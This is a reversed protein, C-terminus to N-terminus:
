NSNRKIQNDIYTNLDRVQRATNELKSIRAVLKRAEEINGEKANSRCDKILHDLYEKKLKPVLLTSIDSYFISDPSVASFFEIDRELEDPKKQRFDRNAAMMKSNLEQEDDLINIYKNIIDGTDPIDLKEADRFSTRADELHKESYFSVGNEINQIFHQIKTDQTKQDEVRGRYGSYSICAFIFAGLLLVGAVSVMVYAWGPTERVPQMNGGYSMMYPSTLPSITAPPAWQPAALGGGARELM